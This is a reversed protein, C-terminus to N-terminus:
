DNSISNALLDLFGNLERSLLDDVTILVVIAAFTTINGTSEVPALALTENRLLAIRVSTDLSLTNSFIM